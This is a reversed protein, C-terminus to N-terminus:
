DELDAKKAPNTPLYTVLVETRAHDSYSKTAHIEVVQCDDVFYAGALCDEAFTVLRSTDPKSNKQFSGDSAHEKKWNPWSKPPSFYFGFSLQVPGGWPADPAHSHAVASFAAMRERDKNSHVVRAVGGVVLARRNNKTSPNGRVVFFTPPPVLQQV